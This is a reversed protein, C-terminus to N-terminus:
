RLWYHPILLLWPYLTIFSEIKRAYRMMKMFDHAQLIERKKNTQKRRSGVVNKLSETRVIEDKLANSTWMRRRRVLGFFLM